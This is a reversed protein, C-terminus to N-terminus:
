NNRIFDRMVQLFKDHEEIYLQHASHEFITLKANPIGANMVEAQKVTTRWDYRGALILTPAKIEHLRPRMDFYPAEHERWWDLVELSFIMREVVEYGIQPDYENFWIAFYEHFRAKAEDNNAPPNARRSRIIEALDPRDICLQDLNAESDAEHEPGTFPSTAALIVHSTSEPYKLAFLQALFGGHSHGFLAIKELGLYVRLAELDDITNDRTYSDVSMRQSRGTGRYDVYVLQMVDALDDLWPRFYSHDIVPGGHLVFCVQREVMKDGVPMLQSGVVDFYLETGNVRAKM